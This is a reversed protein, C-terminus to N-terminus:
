RKMRMGDHLGDKYRKDHEKKFNHMVFIIILVVIATMIGGLYGIEFDSLIM